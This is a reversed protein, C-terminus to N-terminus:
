PTSGPRWDPTLEVVKGTTMSVMAAEALRQAELGDEM